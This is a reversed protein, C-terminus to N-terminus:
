ALGGMLDMLLLIEAIKGSSLGFFRVFLTRIPLVTLVLCSQDSVAAEDLTGPVTARSVDKGQGKPIWAM